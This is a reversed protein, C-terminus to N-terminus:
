KRLLVIITLGAIVTALVANLAGLVDTLKVPDPPKRFPVTVRSGPNPKREIGEENTQVSGDAYEVYTGDEYSSDALGGAQQIYWKWSRGEEWVINGPSNVRGRVEVTAPRKPIEITDGGRLPIDDRSGPKGIAEPFQIQIRSGGTEGRLLRAGELYGGSRIGGAREIVQSLREQPNTLAYRGPRAVWGRVEVLDLSRFSSDGPVALHSGADIPHDASASKLSSDLHLWEVKSLSDGPIRTELRLRGSEAERRFGGGMLILDKVTMGSKWPYNGPEKVAGSLTVSDPQLLEYRNRLLIQDRPQLAPGSGDELDHHLLGQSGDPLRRTILARWRYAADSPGGAAQVAQELTLGPSYPYTGPFRVEGEVTVSANSSDRGAFVHVQDEDRLPASAGALIETPSPLLVADRRGGEFIRQVTVKAQATSANVGGAFQLLDKAGEQELLEYRGPRGVEGRIEVVKGRRPVWVLDGDQLIDRSPKIGRALYDYIDIQRADKGRRVEVVRETGLDTPGKALFLAALVSTNGSLLFSGPQEVDGLVYARVQRLKGLTLDMQTAGSNLGSYAKALRRRLLSEASRLTQGNLSVQGVVELFIQGDRDVQLEYRAEKQGWLTLILEDGPGLAYEPGIAGVHSAAQELNGSRFVKQGWRLTSDLKSEAATDLTDRPPRPRVKGEEPDLGKSSTTRTTARVQSPASRSEFQQASSIGSQTSSVGNKAALDM